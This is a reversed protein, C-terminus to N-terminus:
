LDIARAVGSERDRAPGVATQTTRIQTNNRRSPQRTLRLRTRRKYRKSPNCNRARKRRAFMNGQVAPRSRERGRRGLAPARIKDMIGQGVPPREPDERHQIVPTPALSEGHFLPRDVLSLESCCSKNLQDRRFMTRLITQTTGGPVRRPGETGTHITKKVVATRM